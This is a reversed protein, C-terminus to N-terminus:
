ACIFPETLFKIFVSRLLFAIFLNRLSNVVTALEGGVLSKRGNEGLRRRHVVGGFSVWFPPSRRNQRLGNTKPMIHGIHGFVKSLVPTELLLHYHNSMLVYAHVIWGAQECVEQLTSLFLRQGSGEEVAVPPANSYGDQHVSEFISQGNNGRCMVHYM